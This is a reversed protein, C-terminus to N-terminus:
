KEKEWEEAKTFGTKWELESPLPYDEDKDVTITVELTKEKLKVDVKPEIM